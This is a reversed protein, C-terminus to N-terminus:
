ARIQRKYVDLHTYSVTVVMDKITVAGSGYYSQDKEGTIWLPKVVEYEDDINPDLTDYVAYGGYDGQNSYGVYLKGNDYHMAGYRDRICM